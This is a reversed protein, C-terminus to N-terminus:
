IATRRPTTLNEGNQHAIMGLLRLVVPQNPDTQLIQQYIGEAKPLDGATHHQIALELAHQITFTSQQAPEGTTM